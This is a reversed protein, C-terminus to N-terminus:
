LQRLSVWCQSLTWHSCYQGLMMSLPIVRQIWCCFQLGPSMWPSSLHGLKVRVASGDVSTVTVKKFRQTNHNMAERYSTHAIVKLICYKCGERAHPDTNLHILVLVRQKARYVTTITFIEILYDKCGRSLWPFIKCISHGYSAICWTYVELVIWTDSIVLETIIFTHRCISVRNCM